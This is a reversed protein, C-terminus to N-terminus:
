NLDNKKSRSAGSTCGLAQRGKPMTQGGDSTVHTVIVKEIPENRTRFQRPFLINIKM